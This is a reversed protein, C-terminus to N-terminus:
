RNGKARNHTKCLMQCNSADSAGGKSWAEVHDADMDKFAWIKSSTSQGLACLPCNSVGAAQADATQKQYVIRKVTDDFVRVNLLEPKTGGSLIYKFIGKKDTVHYDSMLQNVEKTVADKSYATMHYNDYYEGWPLGKVEKDTYDFVSTIWNIVSDFHDTLETIDPDDRHRAM